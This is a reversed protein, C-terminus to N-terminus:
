SSQSRRAKLASLRELIRINDEFEDAGRTELMGAEVANELLMKGRETRLVVLNLGTLGAAGVSVDAYDSAFTGCHGCGAESMTKMEKLPVLHETGGRDYVIFSKGKINTKVIDRLSLGFRREIESETEGYRFTEMCFLGLTVSIRESYKKIPVMQIRRAALIHCPTGVVALKRLQMDAADGLALMNASRFYRSGACALLEAKTRAVVPVPLMPIDASLGSAIVGDLLGANLGEALMSTVVGGDQCVRTIEQDKTKAVLLKEYIGFDEEGRRTRGFVFSEVETCEVRFRPCVSHCIGCSKCEGILRPKEGDMNLVKFPCTAVCTGCGCCFDSDVVERNLVEFHMKTVGKRLSM